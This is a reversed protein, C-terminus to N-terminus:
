AVIKKEMGLHKEIAAIRELAHDIDKAYGKMKHTDSQVIELQNRLASMESRLDHFEDHVDQSFENFQDSTVMHEKIFEVTELIATSNADM